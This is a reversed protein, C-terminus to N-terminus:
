PLLHKPMTLTRNTPSNKEIGFVPLIYKTAFFMIFNFTLALVPLYLLSIEIKINLLAVFIMAPLAVSLILLKIGGVQEKAPLKKRLLYGLAILFLFAITKHLALNM